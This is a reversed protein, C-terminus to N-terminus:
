ALKLSLATFRCWGNFTDEKVQTGGRLHAEDFKHQHEAVCEEAKARMEPCVAAIVELLIIILFAIGNYFFIKM